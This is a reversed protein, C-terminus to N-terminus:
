HKGLVLQKIRICLPMLGARRLITRLFSKKILSDFFSIFERRAILSEKVLIPMVQIPAHQVNTDYVNTTFTTHTAGVGDFGSNFVLSKGPYLILMDNLFVSAYWRIAWSNIKGEIQDKLMNMYSYTDAVNFEYEFKNDQLMQYLDLSDPNFLNWARKWTAWGWCGQWKVFFTEPLTGKVPYTYGQVSAVKENDKYLELAENMFKLFYPSTVIDDEVVIVREYKNIVSSIGDILNKALGWNKEREVITVTKFGSVTKIYERTREVDNLVKENKAADSYIILDSYKAEENQLLAEITRRVHDPRCYAFLVIPALEM